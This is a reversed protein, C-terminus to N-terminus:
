CECEHTEKKYGARSCVKTQPCGAHAPAISHACRPLWLLLLVATKLVPLALSRLEALLLHQSSQGAELQCCGAVQLGAAATPAAVGAVPARAPAAAHSAPPHIPAWAAPGSSGEGAAPAPLDDVFRLRHRLLLLLLLAATALHHQHRSLGLLLLLLQHDPGSTRTPPIKHPWRWSSFNNQKFRKSHASGGTSQEQTAQEARSAPCCCGAAQKCCAALLCWCPYEAQQRQFLRTNRSWYSSAIPEKPKATIKQNTSKNPPEACAPTHSLPQM